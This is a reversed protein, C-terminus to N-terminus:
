LSKNCNLLLECNSAINFMKWNSLLSMSSALVNIDKMKKDNCLTHLRTLWNKCLNILKSYSREFSKTTIWLVMASSNVMERLSSATLVRTKFSTSKVKKIWQSGRPCSLQRRRSTVSNTQPIWVRPKSTKISARAKLLSHLISPVALSALLHLVQTSDRAATWPLATVRLLPVESLRATMSDRRIAATSKAQLSSHRIKPEWLSSILILKKCNRSSKRAM